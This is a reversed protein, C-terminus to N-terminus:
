AARMAHRAAFRVIRSCAERLAEDPVTLSVRVLDDAFLGFSAGPMVAVDEQELLQGAFERSGMRLASVNVICFMGGEPLQCSLVDSAALGEVVISARRQLAQRFAATEPFDNAVAFATTDKLFPQSGFFIADSLSSLRKIADQPAICWGCRLGPLARSKSISSVVITRDALNAVNLPSASPVFCLEDYVEDSVIWLDHKRCFQGIAEIDDSNLVAGTPNHPSNLLLVRSRSTIAAELDRVDLHFRRKSRLPVSVIGAGAARVVGDYTAYYPDPIIVEDGPGVLCQMVAYLAAQTGPFFMCNEPNIDRKTLRSYRKALASTLAESDQVNSSYKIRGAQLRERLFDIIRAPPPIDPDGITLEIVKDGRAVRARAAFHIGWKVELATGTLANTVAAYRM